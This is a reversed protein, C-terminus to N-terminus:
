THEDLYWVFANFFYWRFHKKHLQSIIYKKSLNRSFGLLIKEKKKWHHLWKSTERTIRWFIKWPLELVNRQFSKRWSNKCCNIDPKRRSFTRHTGKPHREFTETLIGGQLHLRLTWGQNVEAISVASSVLIKKLSKIPQVIRESTRGCPSKQMYWGWEVLIKWIGILNRWFEMSINESPEQSSEEFFEKLTNQLLKELSEELKM